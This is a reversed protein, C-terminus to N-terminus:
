NIPNRSNTLPAQWLLWPGAGATGASGAEAAGAEAAETGADADAGTGNVGIALM